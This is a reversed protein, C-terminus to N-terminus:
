SPANCLASMAFHHGIMVAAPMLASYTVGVLDSLSTKRRVASHRSKACLPRASRPLSHRNKPTFNGHGSKVWLPCRSTSKATACLPKLYSQVDAQCEAYSARSQFQSTLVQGAIAAYGECASETNTGGEPAPRGQATSNNDAATGRQGTTGDARHSNVAASSPQVLLSDRAIRPDTTKARVGCYPSRCM